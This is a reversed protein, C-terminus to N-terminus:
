SIRELIITAIKDGTADWTFEQLARRRAEERMEQRCRPNTLLYEIAQAAAQVTVPPDILLGTQGDVVLEPIAFSRVSICPCGFSAAEILVLPNTDERTPHVLVDAAGLLERMKKLEEPVDPRLFGEYHVDPWQLISNPPIGGLIHWSLQPFLPKLQRFADAVLDGGKQLFHKAITIIRFRGDPSRVDESPPEVAGANQSVFFNKGAIGYAQRAKELGWCSEFFVASARDLFHAEARWIRELDAVRFECKQFTNHYFTHFCVDTHVFYPRDPNWGIWRTSTRFFAADVNPELTANVSDGMERLVAKSFTFFNGPLRLVRRKLGSM